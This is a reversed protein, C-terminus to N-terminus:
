NEGPSSFLISVITAGKMEWDRHLTAGENEPLDTWGELESGGPDSHTQRSAINSEALSSLAVSLFTLASLRTFVFM